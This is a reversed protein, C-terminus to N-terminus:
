KGEDLMQIVRNTIDYKGSVFVAEQVILDYKEQEAIQRIVRNANRQLATFEEARRLNYEELFQRNVLRYRTQLETLKTQVVSKEQVKLNGSELRAQLLTMEQQMASLQQQQKTFEQRVTQEIQQAVRSENYVRSANVYGFKMNDAYALATLSGSFLMIWKSIRSLTLM